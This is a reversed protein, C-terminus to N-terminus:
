VRMELSERKDLVVDFVIVVATGARRWGRGRGKEVEKKLDNEKESM